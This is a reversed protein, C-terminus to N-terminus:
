DEKKEVKKKSHEGKEFDSNLVNKVKSVKCKEEKRRLLLNNICESGSTLKKLMAQGVIEKLADFKIIM